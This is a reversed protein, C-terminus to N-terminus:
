SANYHLLCGNPRLYVMCSMERRAFQLVWDYIRSWTVLTFRPGNSSLSFRFPWKYDLSWFTNVSHCARWTWNNSLIFPNSTPLTPGCFVTLITVNQSLPFTLFFRLYLASTVHRVKAITGLRSFSFTVLRSLVRSLCLSLSLFLSLINTAAMLIEMCSSM